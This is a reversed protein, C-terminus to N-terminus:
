FRTNLCDFCFTASTASTSGVKNYVGALGRAVTILHISSQPYRDESVRKYLEEFWVLATRMRDQKDATSAIYYLEEAPLPASSADGQLNGDFVERVELDYLEFLKVINIASVRLDEERIWGGLKREVIGFTINFDPPTFFILIFILSQDKLHNAGTVSNKYCVKLPRHERVSM